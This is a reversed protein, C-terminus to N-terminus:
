RTRVETTGAHAHVTTALEEPNEPTPLVLLLRSKPEVLARVQASTLRLGTLGINLRAITSSALVAVDGDELGRAGELSLSELGADRLAALAGPALWQGALDLSQLGPLAVIAAVAERSFVHDSEASPADPPAPHTVDGALVRLSSLGTLVHLQKWHESNLLRKATGVLELELHELNKMRALASMLPRLLAPDDAGVDVILELSRFSAAADGISELGAVSVASSIRLGELSPPLFASLDDFPGSRRHLSLDLHRVQELSGLGRWGRRAGSLDLTRLGPANGLLAELDLESESSTVSVQELHPSALVVALASGPLPVEIDVVRLGKDRCIEAVAEPTLGYTSADVLRAGFGGFNGVRFAVLKRLSRLARWSDKTAIELHGDREFFGGGIHLEELEAHRAIARVLPDTWPGGSVRLSKLSLAEALEALASPDVDGSISLHEFVECESVFRAAEANFDRVELTTLRPFGPMGPLMDARIRLHQLRSFRALEGEALSMGTGTFELFEVDGPVRDLSAMGAPGAVRVAKANEPVHTTYLNLEHVRWQQGTFSDSSFLYQHEWTGPASASLVAGGGLLVTILAIMTWRATRRATRSTTM